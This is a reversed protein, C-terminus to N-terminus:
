EEYNDEIFVWDEIELKNLKIIIDDNRREILFNEYDDVFNIIGGFVNKIFNGINKKKNNNTITMNKTRNNLLFTLEDLDIIQDKKEKLIKEILNFVIKQGKEKSINWKYNKHVM